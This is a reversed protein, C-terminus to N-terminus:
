GVVSKQSPTLGLSRHPTAISDSRVAAARRHHTSNRRGVQACIIQKVGPYEPYLSQQLGRTVRTEPQRCRVPPSIFGASIRRSGKEQIETVADSGDCELRDDCETTM